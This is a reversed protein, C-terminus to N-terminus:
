EVYYTLSQHYLKHIVSSLDVPATMLASASRAQLILVCATEVMSCLVNM